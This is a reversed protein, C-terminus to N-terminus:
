QDLRILREKSFGISDFQPIIPEARRQVALPDGKWADSETAGSSVIVVVLVVFFFFFFSRVRMYTSSKRGNIHRGQNRPFEGHVVLRRRCCRCRVIRGRHLHVLFRPGEQLRSMTLFPHHHDLPMMRPHHFDEEPNWTTEQHEKHHAMPTTFHM